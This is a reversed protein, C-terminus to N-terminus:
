HTPMKVELFTQADITSVNEARTCDKRPILTGTTPERNRCTAAPPASEASAVSSDAPGSACGALLTAAAIFSLLLHTPATFM